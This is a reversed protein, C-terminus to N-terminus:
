LGGFVLADFENLSFYEEYGDATFKQTGCGPLDWVYIDFHHEQSGFTCYQPITTTETVGVQCASKDKPTLNRLANVLSSKGVGSPGIFGVNIRKHFDDLSKKYTDFFHKKLRNKKDELQKVITKTNKWELYIKKKVGEALDYSKQSNNLRDVKKELQKKQDEIKHTMSSVPQSNEVLNQAIFILGM